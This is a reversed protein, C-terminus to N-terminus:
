QGPAYFCGARLKDNAQLIPASQGASVSAVATVIEPYMAAQRYPDTDSLSSCAVYDASGAGSSCSHDLGVSHGLEHTLVVPLQDATVLEPNVVIVQQTLAGNTYCRVTAGPIDSSFGLDQWQTMDDVRVVYFTSTDGLNMNECDIATASKISSPITEVQYSFFDSQTISQGYTNWEQVARQMSALIYPNSSASDDLEEDVIIKVPTSPLPAMFSSQQNAPLGTCNQVYSAFSYMQANSQGCASLWLISGLASLRALTTPTKLPSKKYCGQKFM